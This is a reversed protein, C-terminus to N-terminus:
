RSMGWAILKLRDNTNTQVATLVYPFAAACRVDQIGGAQTGSDAVPQFHDTGERGARHTWWVLKLASHADRVATFIEGESATASIRDAVLGATSGTGRLSLGGPESLDWANLQLTSDHPSPAATVVDAATGTAPVSHIPGVEEANGRVRRIASGTSTINWRILQARGHVSERVASVFGRADPAVATGALSHIPGGQRGSCSVQAIAGTSSVRWAILELESTDARRVTTIVVPRKGDQYVDLTLEDAPPGMSGSDALRTVYGGAIQWTIVKLRHTSAERVATVVRDGDIAASALHTIAGAQYGSDCIRSIRGAATDLSWCILQLIGEHTQIPTVWLPGSPLKVLDFRPAPGGQAGSDFLRLIRAM